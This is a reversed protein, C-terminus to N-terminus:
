ALTERQLCRHDLAVAGVHSDEDDVAHQLDVAAHPEHFLSPDLARIAVRADEGDVLARVFDLAHDDRFFQELLARVKSPASALRGSCVYRPGVLTPGKLLIHDISFTTSRLYLASAPS